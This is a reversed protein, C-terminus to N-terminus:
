GAVCSQVAQLTCLLMIHECRFGAFALGSLCLSCPQHTALFVTDAAPPRQDDPIKQFYGNITSIEGHATPTKATQVQNADAYLLPYGATNHLIAAGFPSNGNDVTAKTAKYASGGLEDILRGLLELAEADACCGEATPNVTTGQVACSGPTPFRSNGCSTCSSESLSFTLTGLLLCALLLAHM